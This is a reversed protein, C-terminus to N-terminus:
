GGVHSALSHALGCGPVVSGNMSWSLASAQLSFLGVNIGPVVGGDGVAKDTMQSRCSALWSCRVPSSFWCQASLLRAGLTFPWNLAWNLHMSHIQNNHRRPREKKEYLSKKSFDQSTIKPIDGM